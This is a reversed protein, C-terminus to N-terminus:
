APFRRPMVSTAPFEVIRLYRHQYPGFNATYYALSAPPLADIM